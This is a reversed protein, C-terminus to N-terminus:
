YRRHREAKAYEKSTPGFLAMCVVIIVVGIITTVVIM